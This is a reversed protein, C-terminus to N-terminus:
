YDVPDRWVPCTMSHGGRGTRGLESGSITIVEVGANRLLTNTYTNRDYAVVVGPEIAVVNNGDDWQERQKNFGSDGTPIINLRKIGICEAAVEFLHKTEIRYDIAGDKNSPRMSVCEVKDCVGVAATAVDSDCHSFIKNLHIGANESPLQCSIVREAAGNAFLQKAVQGVAQQSTHESLGILVTGNGLPMVDGGEITALGHEVCPDGWWTDFELEKFEPHFKYVAAVMLTEAKRATQSRPNLTVGGYIWSSSDRMFQMNPLPPIVFKTKGVITRFNESPKFPLEDVSVGGVLYDSLSEADLEDLWARLEHLMGAGIYNETVTRDLLWRRAEADEVTTQLAEHFELVEVGREELKTRFDAHDIRAQYVWPVSCYHLADTNAPTLRTHALGPHCIMVKRLRGIESHVGFKTVPFDRCGASGGCLSTRAM